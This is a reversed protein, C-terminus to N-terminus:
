ARMAVKAPTRPRIPGAQTARRGASAATLLRASVRRRSGRERIQLSAAMVGRHDTPRPGGVRSRRGACIGAAASPLLAPIAKMKAGGDGRAIPNAVYLDGWNPHTELQVIARFCVDSVIRTPRVRPRRARRRGPGIVPSPASVDRSANAAARRRIAAENVDSQSDDALAMLRTRSRGPALLIASAM